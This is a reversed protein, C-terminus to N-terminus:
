PTVEEESRTGRAPLSRRGARARYAAPRPQTWPSRPARADAATGVSAPHRAIVVAGDVEGVLLEGRDLAAVVRRQHVADRVLGRVGQQVAHPLVRVRRHDFAQHGVRVHVADVRDGLEPRAHPRVGQRAGQPADVEDTDDDPLVRLLDRVEELAARLPDARDVLGDSTGLLRRTRRLDERERVADQVAQVRAVERHCEVASRREAPQGRRARRRDGVVGVQRRSRTRALQGPACEPERLEGRVEGLRRREPAAVAQVSALAGSLCFVAQVPPLGGPCASSRGSLLLGPRLLAERRSAARLPSNQLGPSAAARRSGDYSVSAPRAVTNM